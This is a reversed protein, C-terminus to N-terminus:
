IAIFSTRNIPLPWRAPSRSETGSRRAWLSRPAPVPWARPWHKEFWEIIAHESLKDIHYITDAATVAAIRAFKSAERARAALLTDRIHSQLECLLRRARALQSSTM